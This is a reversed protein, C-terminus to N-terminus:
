KVKALHRGDILRSPPLAMIARTFGGPESELRLDGGHLRLLGRSLPLGLGAGDFKRHLVSGVQM